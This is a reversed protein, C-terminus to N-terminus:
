ATAQGRVEQGRHRGVQQCALEDCAGLAERVTDDALRNTPKASGVIDTFLTTATAEPLEQTV